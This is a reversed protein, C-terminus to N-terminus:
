EDVIVVREIMEHQEIQDVIEIGSTVQGFITDEGDLHPLRSRAIYFQSGGSNPNRGRAMAVAGKVTELETKEFDITYGPGGTGDGKPCGGQVVFNDIVRHWTTGNYFGQRALKVFNAVTKPAQTKRLRFIINGRTTVLVAHM